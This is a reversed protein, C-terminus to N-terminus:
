TWQIPHIALAQVEAPMLDVTNTITAMYAAGKLCTPPKWNLAAFDMGLAKCCAAGLAYGYARIWPQERTQWGTALPFLANWRAEWFLGLAFGSECLGAARGLRHTMIECFVQKQLYEWPSGKPLNNAAMAEDLAEKLRGHWLLNQARLALYNPPAGHYSYLEDGLYSRCIGRNFLAIHRGRPSYEGVSSLIGEGERFREHSMLAIAKISQAMVHLLPHDIGELVAPTRQDILDVDRTIDLQLLTAFARAQAQDELDLEGVSELFILLASNAAELQRDAQYVIAQTLYALPSAECEMLVIGAEYLAWRCVYYLAAELRPTNPDKPDPVDYGWYVQLWRKFSIKSDIGMLIM